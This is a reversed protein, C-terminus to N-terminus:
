HDPILEVPDLGISRLCRCTYSTRVEGRLTLVQPAPSREARASRDLPHASLAPRGPPSTRATPPGSPPAPGASIGCRQCPLIATAGASLVIVTTESGAGTGSGVAGAGKPMGGGSETESAAGPLVSHTAADVRAARMAPNESTCNDISALGSGRRDQVPQQMVAVHDRDPALAVPQALVKAGAKYALGSPCRPLLQGSGPPRNRLDDLSRFPIDSSM